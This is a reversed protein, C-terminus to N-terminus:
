KTKYTNSTGVTAGGDRPDLCGRALWEAASASDGAIAGAQSGPVNAISIATVLASLLGTLPMM